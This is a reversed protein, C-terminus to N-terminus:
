PKCVGSVVQKYIPDCCKGENPDSADTTWVKPSTCLDLSAALQAPANLSTVVCQKGAAAQYGAPCTYKAATNPLTIADVTLMVCTVGATREMLLDRVNIAQIGYNPPCRLRKLPQCDLDLSGVISSGGVNQTALASMTKKFGKPFLGSPCSLRDPTRLCQAIRSTGLIQYGDLIQGAGCVLESLDKYFGEPILFRYDSDTFTPGSGQAGLSSIPLGDKAQAGIRYAVQWIPDPAGAAAFNKLAIDVFVACAPDVNPNNCPSGSLVNHYSRVRTDGITDGEFKTVLIIGATSAALQDRLRMTGNAPVSAGAYFAPSSLTSLLKSEVTSMLNSVQVKKTGKFVFKSIAFIGISVVGLLALAIAVEAISFGDKKKLHHFARGM